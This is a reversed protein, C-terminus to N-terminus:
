TLDVFIRLKGNKKPVVVIPSMFDSVENDDLRRIVGLEEMSDLEKKVKPLLPQAISRPTSIFYPQANERLCIEYECGTIHCVFDKGFNRSILSFKKETRKKTTQTTM